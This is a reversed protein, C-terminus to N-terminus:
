KKGEKEMKENCKEVFFAVFGGAFFCLAFVCVDMLSKANGIPIISAMSALAVGLIIHMTYAYYNKLLHNMLRSLSFVSLLLGLGMPLLIPLSFDAIGASMKQYVGMFIFISSPSLGPAIIGIGWLIGCVLWTFFGTQTQMKGSHNLFLFFSLVIFFTVITSLITKKSKGKKTAEKFLNPMTGVILGLFLWVAPVPSYRFLLDVIRALGLVGLLFGMFIPLFFSFNAKLEKFPHALMEMIPQYVHLAVCLVGGSIGPLIAGTGILAGKLILFIFHQNM